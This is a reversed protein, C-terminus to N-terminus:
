ALKFKNLLFRIKNCMKEYCRLKDEGNIVNDYESEVINKIEKIVTRYSKEQQEEENDHQCLKDALKRLKLINENVDKENKIVKSSVMM